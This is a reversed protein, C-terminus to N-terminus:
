KNSTASEISKIIRLTSINQFAGLAIIGLGLTGYILLTSIFLLQHLRNSWDAFLVFLLLLIGEYLAIGAIGYKLMKEKKEIQELAKRRIEDFNKESIM